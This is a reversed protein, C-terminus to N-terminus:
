EVIDVKTTKTVDKTTKTVDLPEISTKTTGPGITPAPRRPRKAAVMPKTKSAASRVEGAYLLQQMILVDEAPRLLVIYQKGRAAYRGLACRETRRM